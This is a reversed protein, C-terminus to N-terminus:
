RLLFARCKSFALGFIKVIIKLRDKRSYENFDLDAGNVYLGTTWDTVEFNTDDNADDKRCGELM